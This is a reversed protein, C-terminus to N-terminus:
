WLPSNIKAIEQAMDALTQARLRSYHLFKHIGFNLVLSTAYNRLMTSSQFEYLLSSDRCGVCTQNAEHRQPTSLQPDLMDKLLIGNTALLSSSSICTVLDGPHKGMIVELTVVGFSYLDCKCNVEATYALEPATYGM